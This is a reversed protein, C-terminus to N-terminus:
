YYNIVVAVRRLAEAYTKSDDRVKRWAAMARPALEKASDFGVDRLFMPIRDADVCLEVVEENSGCMAAADPAIQSRVYHIAHALDKSETETLGQITHTKNTNM